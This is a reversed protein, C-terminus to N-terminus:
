TAALDFVSRPATTRLPPAKLACVRVQRIEEGKGTAEEDAMAQRAAYVRSWKTRLEAVLRDTHAQAVAKHQIAAYRSHSGRGLCCIPYGELLMRQLLKQMTNWGHKDPLAEHLERSTMGGPNANLEEVVKAARRATKLQMVKM